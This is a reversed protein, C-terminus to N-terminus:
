RERTRGYFLHASPAWGTTDRITARFGKSMEERRPNRRSM